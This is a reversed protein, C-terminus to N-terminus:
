IYQIDTCCLDSLRVATAGWSLGVGFACLIANIEKANKNNNFYDTLLLPITTGNTNGYKDINIPCKETNIKARKVIYNVMYANAQHLFYFDVDDKGWNTLGEIENILHPVRKVAFSFIDMGNMHYNELSRMNGDGVDVIKGTEETIPM